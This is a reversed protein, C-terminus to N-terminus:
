KNIYNYHTHTNTCAYTLKLAMPFVRFILLKKKNRAGYVFYFCMVFTLPHSKIKVKIKPKSFNNNLLNNYITTTYSLIINLPFSNSSHVCSSELRSKVKFNFLYVFKGLNM